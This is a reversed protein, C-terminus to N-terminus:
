CLTVEPYLCIYLAEESNLRCLHLKSQRGRYACISCFGADVSNQHCDSADGMNLVVFVFLCFHFSRRPRYHVFKLLSFVGVSATASLSCLM